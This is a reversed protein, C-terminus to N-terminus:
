KGLDEPRLLRAGHFVSLIVVSDGVIRYLIRYREHIVERYPGSPRERPPHGMDPHVGLANGADILEDVFSEARKPNDRGIYEEIADLRDAARETWLVKM